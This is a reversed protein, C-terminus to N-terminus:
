QAGTYTIGGNISINEFLFMDYKDYDVININTAQNSGQSFAITQLWQATLIVPSETFDVGIKNDSYLALKSSETGLPTTKINFNASVKVKNTDIVLGNGTDVILKNNSDQTLGDSYDVELNDNVLKTTDGTNVNVGNANVTIGSGKKVQIANGNDYEIGNGNKTLLTTTTGSGTAQLGSGVVFSIGTASIVKGTITIGAGAIYEGSLDDWGTGNWAYNDGTDEVNWVDGKVNGTTPLDNYTAVQGQYHMAQSLLNLIKVISYTKQNANVSSADLTDDIIQSKLNNFNDITFDISDYRLMGYLGNTSKHLEIAYNNFTEAIKTFPLWSPTTTNSINVYLDSENEVTYVDNKNATQPLQSYNAVTSKYKMANKSVYDIIKQARWGKTTESTDDLINSILRNDIDVSFDNGDYRVNIHKKNQSDVTIDTALGSQVEQQNIEDIQQQLNQIAQNFVIDSIFQINCLLDETGDKKIGYVKLNNPITTDYRYSVYRLALLEEQVEQTLNAFSGIPEWEYAWEDNNYLHGKAKYITFLNRVDDYEMKVNATGIIKEMPIFKFLSSDQPPTTFNNTTILISGQVAPSPLVPHQWEPPETRINNENILENNM